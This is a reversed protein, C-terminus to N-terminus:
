RVAELYGQSSIFAQGVSGQLWLWLTREAGGDQASSDVGALVDLALTYEGSRITDASPTVGDVSIIKYGDALGMGVCESWFGFGIVNDATLPLSEGTVLEGDCGVLRDLAAISGSGEPRKLVSIDGNGGFTSWSTERGTFISEIEDSSLDSVRSGEGVFFVLADRSVPATDIGSPMSEGEPAVVVGAEGSALAAWSDGTSGLHLYEGATERTTGLMIAAVSEMMPTYAASAYVEPFTDATYQYDLAVEPADTPDPAFDGCAALSLMLASATLLATLKKM